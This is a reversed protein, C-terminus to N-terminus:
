ILSRAISFFRRTTAGPSILFAGVATKLGTRIRKRHLFGVALDIQATKYQQCINEGFEGGMYKYYRCDEVISKIEKSYPIPEQYQEEVIRKTLKAQEEQNSQSIGKPNIRYLYLIEPIQGIQWKKAIKRWLDYDEAKYFEQSYGGVDLFAQKKFMTSGHALPNTYYMSRKIDIDKTPFTITVGIPKDNKDIYSFFTGVLGNQGNIHMWKVEKELRTPMSIDDDDQRAILSGRALAVGKNLSYVLGHNSQEVLRIRSDKYSKIIENSKDTSGDDIIIFEFNRYTQNLISEISGKLYAEGNYVSMVVSVAPKTEPSEENMAQSLSHAHKTIASSIKIRASQDNIKDYIAELSLILKNDADIISVNSVNSDHKRYYALTEPTSMVGSPFANSIRLWLEYDEVGIMNKNEDFGGVKEICHKRTIVTLTSIVNDELLDEFAEGDKLHQNTVITKGSKRGDESIVEANGYSLKINNDTFINQQKIFKDDVWKDDSDQFAILSGKAKKIAYNRAIAPSGSHKIKYYKIGQTIYPKIVSATNDTSGDDVVLIEMQWGPPLKQSIVSDLSEGLYKSRNYTPIIVSVLKNNSQM